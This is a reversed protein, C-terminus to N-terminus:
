RTTDGYASGPKSLSDPTVTSVNVTPGAAEEHMVETVVASEDAPDFIFDRDNFEYCDPDFIDPIGDDNWDPYWLPDWDNYFFFDDILLAGLGDNCTRRRKKAGNKPGYKKLKDAEKTSTSIALSDRHAKEIKKKEVIEDRIWNWAIKVLFFAIFAVIIWFVWNM